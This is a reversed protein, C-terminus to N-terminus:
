ERERARLDVLRTGMDLVRVLLLVKGLQATEKGNEVNSIFKTTTNTQLALEQQTLGRLM